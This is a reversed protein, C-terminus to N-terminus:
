FVAVVPCNVVAGVATLGGLAQHAVGAGMPQLLGDRVRAEVETFSLLRERAEERVARPSWLALHLDWVPTYARAGPMEELINQPDGEGRLASRLGHQQTPVESRLPGNIIAVIGLRVSAFRPDAAAASLGALSPAHTAGEMAAVMPDSAETSVYWATRGRAYGRSVRFVAFLLGRDIQVARDVVETRTAVHPANLVIGNPFEVFPSYGEGARSGPTAVRPPFASDPNALVSRSPSFDVGADVVLRTGDWTGRQVFTTGRLRALEPAWNVKRREADASDSSETVIFWAVEGAARGITLPLVALGRATDIAQAAGLTPRLMRSPDGSRAACGVTVTSFGLLILASLVRVSPILPM